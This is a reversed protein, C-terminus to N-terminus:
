ELFTLIRWRNEKAIGSHEARLTVAGSELTQVVRCGREELRELLEEHPHGYSNDRGASILALRPTVAQLFAESTSYRSGHHAVKLVELEALPLQRLYATLEREGEGEVDGTLL